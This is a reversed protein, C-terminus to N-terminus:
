GNSDDIETQLPNRYEDWIHQLQPDGPVNGYISFITMDNEWGLSQWFTHLEVCEPDGICISVHISAVDKGQLFGVAQRVLHSRIEQKRPHSQVSLEEIEGSLGPIVPHTRVACTIYGIIERQEEAVFCRVMPHSVYHRLNALIMKASIEPLPTGLEASMQMWMDRVREAEDERMVRFQIM